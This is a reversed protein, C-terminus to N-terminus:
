AGGPQMFLQMFCKPIRVSKIARPSADSTRCIDGPPGSTRFNRSYFLKRMAMGGGPTTGTGLGHRRGDTGPTGPGQPAPPTGTNSLIFLACLVILAATELM